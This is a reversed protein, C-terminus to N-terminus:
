ENTDPEIIPPQEELALNHQEAENAFSKKPDYPEYGGDIDEVYQAGGESESRASRLTIMIMSFIAMCLLTSFLWVLGSAGDVCLGDRVGAIVPNFTSCKLLNLTVILLGNFVHLMSHLGSALNQIINLNETGCVDTISDGNNAAYELFGHVVNVGDWLPKAESLLQVPAFDSECRLYYTLYAFFVPSMEGAVYKNLVYDVHEEPQVCFDAGGIAAVQFLSAFLWSLIVFLFFLPLIVGNKMCSVFCNRMKRGRWALLVEVILCIVIIILIFMVAGTCYLFPYAKSVTNNADEAHQIAASLDSQLNKATDRLFDDISQLTDVVEDIKQQVDQGIATDFAADVIQGCVDNTLGVFEDREAEATYSLDIFSGTVNHLETLIDQTETISGQVENLSSALSGVGNTFFLISSVIVGIGSFLFLIRNVLLRREYGKMARAWKNMNHQYTEEAISGAIKPEKPKRPTGSACGVRKGACKLGILVLSWVIFVGLTIISGVAVGTIYQSRQDQDEFVSVFQTTRGFRPWEHMGKVQRTASYVPPIYDDPEYELLPDLERHIGATFLM